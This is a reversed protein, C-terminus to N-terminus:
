CILDERLREKLLRRWKNFIAIIPESSYDPYTWELPKFTGDKFILTLDAYIGQGIYIRHTYGKTTALILNELTIYGPDINVRRKGHDSLNQEIQNTKIKIESLEDRKKLSKFLLFRRKLNEGMEKAYYKTHTFSMEETIDEIEGLLEILRVTAMKYAEESQYILSAFYLVPKTERIEGM